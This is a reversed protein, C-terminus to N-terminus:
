IFDEPRYSPRFNFCQQFCYWGCEYCPEQSVPPFLHEYKLFTVGIYINKVCEMYSNVPRGLVKFNEPDPVLVDLGDTRVDLVPLTYIIKTKEFEPPCKYHGMGLIQWYDPSDGDDWLTVNVWDGRKLSGIDM